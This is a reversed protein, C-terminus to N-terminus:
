LAYKGGKGQGGRLPRTKHSKIKQHPNSISMGMM